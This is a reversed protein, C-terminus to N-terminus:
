DGGRIQRGRRRGWESFQDYVETKPILDNDNTEISLTEEGFFEGAPLWGVGPRAFMTGTVSDFTLLQMTGDAYVLAASNTWASYGGNNYGVRKPTSTGINVWGGLIASRHSDGTISRQSGAAHTQPSPRAGNSGQHGHKDAHIPRWEPGMVLPEGFPLVRVNHPDLTFIEKEEYDRRVEVPLNEIFNRRHNLVYELPESIGMGDRAFTLEALIKGNVVNHTAPKKDMLDKLWYSHNSDKYNRNLVSPIAALANDFQVLGGLEKAINLEGNEFKKILISIKELEHRNAAFNDIPDEVFVRVSRPDFGELLERYARLFGQDALIEHVDGMFLASPSQRDIMPVGDKMFYHAGLDTFGKVPDKAHNKYEVPRVHWRNQNGRSDIGSASDAKELVLFSNVHFNKALYSTRAQVPYVYPYLNQSLSGTSWIPTERVHNSSTPVVEHALQPHGVIMLQGPLFQNYKKLSAFPNQNKPLIGINSLKFFRNQITHSIVHIRPNSLLRPDLGEFQNNTAYVIIDYDREQAMKLMLTFMDEELPMGANVSTVLFGGKNELASKLREASKMNAVDPNRFNAFRAPNQVRAMAELEEIGGPFVSPVASSVESLGLLAKVAEVSFKSGEVDALAAAQLNLNMKARLLAQYIEEVTPRSAQTKLHKPTDRQSLARLYADVLKDAVKLMAEPNATRAELRFAEVDGIIATQIRLATARPLKWSLIELMEEATPLRLQKSFFSMSKDRLKRRVELFLEPYEAASAVIIQEVDASEVPGLGKMKNNLEASTPLRKLKLFMESTQIMMTARDVNQSEFRLSNTCLDASPQDAKAIAGFFSVSFLFALVFKLLKFDLTDGWFCSVASDFSSRLCFAGDM